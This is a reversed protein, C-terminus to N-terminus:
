SAAAGAMQARPARTSQDDYEPFLKFLLREKEQVFQKLEPTYYKEWKQEASRGKGEPLIKGLDLIFALDDSEYGMESLFEYLEQNLRETHIFRVDFMDERYKEAGIYDDDIRRFTRRPSKFYFKVFQETRLGLAEEGKLQRNGLDCFAENSLGM